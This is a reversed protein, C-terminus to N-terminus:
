DELGLVQRSLEPSDFDDSWEPGDETWGRAAREKRLAEFDIGGKREGLAAESLVERALSEVSKGQAKAKQRLADHVEDPLNRVTIASM